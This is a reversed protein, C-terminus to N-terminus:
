VVQDQVEEDDLAILACRLFKCGFCVESWFYRNFTDVFANFNPIRDGTSIDSTGYLEDILEVRLYTLALCCLMSCIIICGHVM